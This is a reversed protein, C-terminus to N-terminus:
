IVCESRAPIVAVNVEQATDRSFKGPEAMLNQDALRTLAPAADVRKLIAALGGQAIGGGQYRSYLKAKVPGLEIQVRDEVTGIQNNNVFPIRGRQDRPDPAPASRAGTELQQKM